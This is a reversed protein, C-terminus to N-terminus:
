TKRRPTHQPRYKFAGLVLQPIWSAYLVPGFLGASRVSVAITLLLVLLAAVYWQALLAFLSLLLGAVFIFPGPKVRLFAGLTGGRLSAMFAQGAGYYKKGLVSRYPVLSGLLMRWKPLRATHHDAFPVDRFTVQCTTRRLRGYLEVEEYAYLGPNWNGAALVMERPLVVAGGFAVCRMGDRNGHITMERTGGDPYVHLCKGVVGHTRDGREILARLVPIFEERLTMDGDLYVIWDGRATQTGVHRGVSANLYASAALEVVCDFLQRAIQPSDDTSASDVYITEIAGLASLPRLSQVLRPLNRAENRGIAVVSVTPVPDSSM